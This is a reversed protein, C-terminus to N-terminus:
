WIWELKWSEPALETIGFGILFFRLGIRLLIEIKASFCFIQRLLMDSRYDNCSDELTAVHLFGRASEEAAM